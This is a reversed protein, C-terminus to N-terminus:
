KGKEHSKKGFDESLIRNIGFKLHKPQGTGEGERRSEGSWDGDTVYRQVRKTTCFAKLPGLASPPQQCGGHPVVGRM